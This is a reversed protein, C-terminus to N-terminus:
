QIPRAMGGRCTVGPIALYISSFHLSDDFWDIDMFLGLM